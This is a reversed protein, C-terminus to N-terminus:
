KCKTFHIRYEIIIEINQFGVFFKFHEQPGKKNYLNDMNYAKVGGVTLSIKNGDITETISPIEVVFMMREYYLTKEWEQLENAPKNRANPIRGKIPHSVRINPNLIIEGQYVEKVTDCLTEIFDVQSIAPENDKVFVPIIHNNEIEKESRRGM